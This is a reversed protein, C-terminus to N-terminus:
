LHDFSEVDWMSGRRGLMRNITHASAGKIGQLIEALGYPNAEADNLPTLVLHVHDPMVVAGHLIYKRDRDHLCHQLVADRAEPPLQWRARTAFTIFYTKGEAQLHPLHRRYAAKTPKAQM